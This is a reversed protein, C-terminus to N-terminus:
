TLENSQLYRDKQSCLPFSSCYKCAKVEGKVERVISGPKGKEAQYAYASASSTFTKTARTNTPKTFYKYSTESRWLDEEPCEPIDKEDADKYKLYLNLKNEIYQETDGLSMLNFPQCIIPSSPYNQQVASKASWDTFIYNIYMIDSTILDPRLWKYISGQRIYKKNNSQFIYSYVSTTKTDQLSGNAIIDVQGTINFGMFEKQFRQELIFDLQNQQEQNYGLKNLAQTPNSLCKEIYEHVAHGIMRSTLSKINEATNAEQIIDKPLREALIIQRIPRILTTASISNEIYEYNDTLLAINMVDNIM